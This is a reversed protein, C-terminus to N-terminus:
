RGCDPDEYPLLPLSPIKLSLQLLTYFYIPKFTLLSSALSM